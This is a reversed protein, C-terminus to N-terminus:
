TSPLKTFVGSGNWSRLISSCPLVGWIQHYLVILTKNHEPNQPWFNSPVWGPCDTQTCLMQAEALLVWADPTISHHPSSDDWAEENTHRAGPSPTDFNPSLQFQWSYSCHKFTHGSQTKTKWKGCYCRSPLCRVLPEPELLLYELLCPLHDHDETVWSWFDHLM